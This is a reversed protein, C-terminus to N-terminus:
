KREPERAVARFFEEAESESVSRTAALLSATLAKAQARDTDSAQDLTSMHLEWDALMSELQTQALTFVQWVKDWRYMANLSTLAAILVSIASTALRPFLGSFSSLLPLTAGAVVIIATAARYLRRPTSKHQQYWGITDRVYRTVLEDMIDFVNGQEEVRSKSFEAEM